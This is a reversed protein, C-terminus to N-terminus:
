RWGFLFFAGVRLNHKVQQMLIQFFAFIIALNVTCDTSDPHFLVKIQKSLCHSKFTCTHVYMRMFHVRRDLPQLQLWKLETVLHRWLRRAIVANILDIGLQCNKSTTTNNKEDYRKYQQNQLSINKNNHVLHGRTRVSCAASGLRPSVPHSTCPCHQCRRRSSPSWLWRSQFLWLGCSGWGSTRGQLLRADPSCTGKCGANAGFTGISIPSTQKDLQSLRRESPCHRTAPGCRQAVAVM